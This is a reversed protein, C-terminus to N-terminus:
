HQYDACQSQDDSAYIGVNELRQSNDAGIEKNKKKIKKRKKEPIDM